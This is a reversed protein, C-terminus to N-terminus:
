LRMQREHCFGRMTKEARIDSLTIIHNEVVAVMRDIVESQAQLLSLALAVAVRIM